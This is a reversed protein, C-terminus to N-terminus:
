DKLAAAPTGLEFLPALEMALHLLRYRTLAHDVVGDILDRGALYLDEQARLLDLLTGRRFAFQERVSDYALAAVQVAEKRAAVSANSNRADALTQNIARELQRRLNDLELRSEVAKQEAQSKRASDAGGSYFNHRIVVGATQDLGPIGTDGMDRRTASVEFHISPLMAAAASKADFGAAQSQALAESFLANRNILSATDAFRAFDVALAEPLPVDTPAASEFTERYTAETASLRNEAAVLATQADSLRARARLVDSKSSGGLQEREEIFNLIQGRSLRNVESLKLMQRARFMEHWVSIARLAIESRRAESKAETASERATLADVRGGIAGFDYILQRATIGFSYSKDEHAPVVAWPKNVADFQRRGGDINASVQPLYGAFAERTAYGATLKQESTLRVEPHALVAAQIRPRISALPARTSPKDTWEVAKGLFSILQDAVDHVRLQDSTSAAPIPRAPSSDSAAHVTLPFATLSACLFLAGRLPRKISLSYM